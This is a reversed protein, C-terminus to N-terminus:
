GVGGDRRNLVRALGMGWYEEAEEFVVFADHEECGVADGGEVAGELGADM